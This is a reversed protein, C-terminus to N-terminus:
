SAFNIFKKNPKKKNSSFNLEGKDRAVLSLNFDPRVERDLLDQRDGRFFVRGSIQDITFLESGEGQVTIVFNQNGNEDLDQARIKRSLTVETGAPSNETIRGEYFPVEFMPANDNEDDVIVTVQYNM